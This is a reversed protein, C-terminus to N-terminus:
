EILNPQNKNNNEDKTLNVCKVAYLKGDNEDSMKFVVAFNGSSMVPDGHSDLVPRLSALENFNDEASMIAEKYESILPYEM